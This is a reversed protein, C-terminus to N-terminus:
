GESLCLRAAAELSLLCTTSIKKFTDLGAKSAMAEYSDPSIEEHDSSSPKRNPM